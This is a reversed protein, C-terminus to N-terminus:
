TGSPRESLAPFQRQEHQVAGPRTTPPLLGLKVAYATLRGLAARDNALRARLDAEDDTPQDPRATQKDLQPWDHMHAVASEDDAVQTRAEAMGATVAATLDTRARPDGDTVGWLVVWSDYEFPPRALQRFVAGRAASTALATRRAFQIVDWPSWGAAPLDASLFGAADDAWGAALWGDFTAAAFRVNDGTPDLRLLAVVPRRRDYAGPSTAWARLAPGAETAHLAVLVRAASERTMWQVPRWGDADEYRLQEILVPVADHGILQVQRELPASDMYRKLGPTYLGNLRVTMADPASSVAAPRDPACGVLVLGVVGAVLQRHM